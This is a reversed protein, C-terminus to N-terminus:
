QIVCQFSQGDQSNVGLLYYTQFPQVFFQGACTGDTGPVRSTVGKQDVNYVIIHSLAFQHIGPELSGLDVLMQSDLNDIDTSKGGDVAVSMTSGSATGPRKAWILLKVEVPTVAREGGSQALAAVAVTTGVAACLVFMIRRMTSRMLVETSLVFEVVASSWVM